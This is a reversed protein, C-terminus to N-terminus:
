AADDAHYDKPVPLAGLRRGAAGMGLAYRTGDDSEVLAIVLNAGSADLMHEITTGLRALTTRVVMEVIISGPADEHTATDLGAENRLVEAASETGEPSAGPLRIAHVHWPADPATPDILRTSEAETQEATHQPEQTAM